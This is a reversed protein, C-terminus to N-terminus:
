AQHHPQEGRAVRIEDARSRLFTLGRRIFKPIPSLDTTLFVERVADALPTEKNKPVKLMKSLLLPRFKQKLLAWVKEIGENFDFHYAVNWVPVIGLDNMADRAEEGCHYRANDLFLYITEEGTSARLQKLFDIWRYRDYSYDVIDYALLGHCSCVAGAVAQCPQDGTRDEVEVNEHPNAWAFKSFGRAKFVCEDTFVLHGGQEIIRDVQKDLAMIKDEFEELRMSKRQPANFVKIKKM